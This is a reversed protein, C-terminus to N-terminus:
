KTKILNNYTEVVEQAYRSTCYKQSNPNDIISQIFDIDKYISSHLWRNKYLTPADIITPRGYDGYNPVSRNNETIRISNDSTVGANHLMFVESLRDTKDTAWAFDMWKPTSTPLKHRWLNWQIAWMDACFSQIGNNEKEIRTTGPFFEQNITQFFIRIKLCLDICESFFKFNMNKLLYQAGGTNDNEAKIDSIALGAFKAARDVINAKEYQEKKEPIVDKIKSSLYTENLYTKTDSLYNIDDDVYLGIPPESTFIVDSDIYFVASNQLDPFAKFHRELSCLRHIPVYDYNVMLDTVKNHPDTYYFFKAEPYRKEMEKWGKLFERQYAPLFILLRFKDVLGYKSLNFLQTETEWIFREINEVCSIIVLERSM